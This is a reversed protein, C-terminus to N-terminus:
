RGKDGLGEPAPNRGVSLYDWIAEQQRRVDGGPLDSRLRGEPWPPPMGSEPLTRVPDDLHRHFWTRRVRVPVLDLDIGRQGRGGARPPAGAFGHCLVCDLGRAGVLVRGADAVRPDAARQVAEARPEGCLAALGEGLTATAHSAFVPMRLELWPRAGRAGAFVADLWEVQLREGLDFLRPPRETFRARGADGHCEECRHMAVAALVDRAPAVGQWPLAPGRLYEALAARQRPDLADRHRAPVTEAVEGQVMCGSAIPRLAGTRAGPRLAAVEHCAACNRVEMVMHAEAAVEDDTLHLDPMRFPARARTSEFLYAALDEAEARTLGMRPMTGAPLLRLPDLLFGALDAGRLWKQAVHELGVQGPEVRAGPVAHCATCGIATFREAGRAVSELPQTPVPIPAPAGALHRAVAYRARVGMADATGLAPMKAGPMVRAPALLWEFVYEPRVRGRLSALPQGSGANEPQPMRHAQTPEGPPLHCAICRLDRFLRAGAARLMFSREAEPDWPGPVPACEAGRVPTARGSADRTQVQVRGGSRGEVELVFRTGPAVALPDDGVQRDAVRLRAPVDAELALRLTAPPGSHAWVLTATFAGPALTEHLTRGPELAFAPRPLRLWAVRGAADQVRVAVPLEREQAAAPAALASLLLLGRQIRAAGM